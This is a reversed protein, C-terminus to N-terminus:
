DHTGDPHCHLCAGEVGYTTLATGYGAVETHHANTRALQHQGTHCGTCTFRGWDTAPDVHCDRCAFVSHPGSTIPFLAGHGPFTSTTWSAENHCTVCATTIGLALHPPNDTAQYDAAHCGYCVRPTGAYVGAVHCSACAADAHRGRLPWTAEHDFSSPVWAVDGHCTQCTTPFGAAVHAPASTGVFTDHHCGDCTTPTGAYVEGVHCSACSPTTHSGTLPWYRDHATFDVPRWALATHCGACATPLQASPHSPDTTALYDPLHCGECARPTGAYVGGAHCSACSAAAHRGELPWFSTHDFAAPRWADTDHCGQCTEPYGAVVHDPETTAEFLSRHCGVCLRPTGEFVGGVHCSACSAAAHRGTLPWYPDHAAFGAPTWGSAAHCGACAIPIQASTHSPSTTAQYDPLHCGECARPTGLYIENTHCSTCPAAAHRGELPWRAGHDFHAPDWAATDHCRQCSEPYAGVEHDPDTTAVYDPRHCGVCERPTGGFVDGAHCSACTTDAHAGTLTWYQDHVEFTAPRWDLTTHCGACTTALEADVHSPRTTAVYDPRHCGVCERPTGPFVDGEHCSACTADVHAGDLPWSAAHDFGSPRWASADHCGACATPYGLEHDPETTALYDDRHCGVCERSTGEFVDGAHCSACSTSVHAGALPWYRDHVDFTAPSWGPTTHCGACTTALEADVHRPRTTAEYDPLHCGECERPTGLFTDGAHCSACTADVHAGDLPWSTAHDFGSPRWASADHCGACTTPYGLEHDPETTALYDARHCGVCERSTGEFVDGAHCSACTTDAHAGTLPWYRDHVDFTAPSWGWATHCDACTTPLQAQVHSPAAAATYASLHCGDCTRPADAYAVGEDHCGGCSATAHRGELPWFGAHDFSAPRWGVTDHCGACATPYRGAQHDPDTTADFDVQHCAVCERSLAVAIGQTHCSACTAELHGGTLPWYRDHDGAEAPRWAISTHCDECTRPLARQVHDPGRAGLYRDAHCAWCTQADLAPGGHGPVEGGCGVTWVCALLISGLPTQGTTTM